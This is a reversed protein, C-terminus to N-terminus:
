GTSRGLLFKKVKLKFKSVSELGTNSDALNNWLTVSSHKDTNRTHYSHYDSNISFIDVFCPPSVGNLCQYVLTLLLLDRLQGVNLIKFHSYCIFTDNFNACEGLLRVAKNQITQIRRYNAYLNSVWLGCGCLNYPQIITGYIIKLVSVLFFNRFRHLLDLGLKIKIRYKSIKFKLPAM